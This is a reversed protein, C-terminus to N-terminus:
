YAKLQALTGNFVDHDLPAGQNQWFVWPIKPTSSWNAVWNGDQGLNGPWTGESSYLLIKRHQYTDYKRLNAIFSKGVQPYRLATSEIDLALIDANGAAKVFIAAQRAGGPGYVLYHYAGVVLGAKRATAYHSAYAGDLSCSISARIFAFQHGVIVKSIDGQWVSVDIGTPQSM